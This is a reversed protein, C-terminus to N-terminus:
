NTPVPDPELAHCPIGKLGLLAVLYPDKMEQDLLIVTRDEANVGLVHTKLTIGANGAQWHLTIGTPRPLSESNSPFGPLPYTHGWRNTTMTHLKERSITPIYIDHERVRPHDIFDSRKNTNQRWQMLRIGGRDLLSSLVAPFPQEGSELVNFCFIRDSGAWLALVTLDAHVTIHLRGVKKTVPMTDPIVSLKGPFRRAMSELVLFPNWTTPVPCTIIGAGALDNTLSQRTSPPVLVFPTGWPTEAMPTTRTDIRLWGKGPLPYFTQKGRVFVFGMAELFLRTYAKGQEPSLQALESPALSSPVGAQVTLGATVLPNKTSHIPQPITVRQGPHVLNIDTIDRNLTLFRRIYSGMIERFGMGTKRRLVGLLTDGRKFTYTTPWASTAADPPAPGSEHHQNGSAAMTTRTTAPGLPLRISQGPHIPASPDISPNLKRIAALVEPINEQPFGQNRIITYLCDGKKVTYVMYGKIPSAKTFVLRPTGASAPALFFTVVAFMTVAVSALGKHVQFRSPGTPDNFAHRRMSSHREEVAPFLDTEIPQFVPGHGTPAALM